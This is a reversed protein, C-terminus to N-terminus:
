SGSSDVILRDGGASTHLFSQLVFEIAISDACHDIRESVDPMQRRMFFINRDFLHLLAHFDM